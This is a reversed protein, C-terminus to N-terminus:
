SNVLTRLRPMLDTALMGRQGDRAAADAAAAHLCVGLRAADQNQLGQAVFGAIVGTLVDGMGGSAMGPNGASCISPINEGDVVITGSGKLIVVGGYKKQLISAAALRDSQVESTHIGLLRAAEGPHPTLIWNKLYLPEKAILNLADADVVLPLKSELTRALISTAWGSQGLGPGIAVVTAREFLPNLDTQTMIGRAMIEPRALSFTLAHDPRTAVTVLGAGTRAAAEAAMLVAGAMGYDGGILLVHGFDGKQSTQSREALLKKILGYEIREASSPVEDYILNPIDLDSYSIDGCYDAGMGTFMGQKLGVFSITKDAHVAVGMIEGTNANLGSPLDISLVPSGSANVAEIVQRYKADVERDIGTGLLADVIVDVDALLAPIFDLCAGNKAKFEAAATKADGKLNAPDKLYLVRVSCNNELAYRAIVYGDGANNGSGCIVSINKADPWSYRLTDWAAYGARHMLTIGPILHTNIAVHDLDRVQSARYLSIPLHAMSPTQRVISSEVAATYFGGV